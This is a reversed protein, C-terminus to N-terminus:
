VADRPCHEAALRHLMSVHQPSPAPCVCSCCHRVRIAHALTPLFEADLKLYAYAQPTKLLDAACGLAVVRVQLCLRATQAIGDHRSCHRLAIGWFGTLLLSSWECNIPLLGISQLSASCHQTCLLVVPHRGPAWDHPFSLLHPVVVVLSATNRCLVLQMFLGVTSEAKPNSVVNMLAPLVESKLIAAHNELYITLGSLIAVARERDAYAGTVLDAALERLSEALPSSSQKLPASHSHQYTVASPCSGAFPLMQISRHSILMQSLLLPLASKQPQLQALTSSLLQAAPLSASCNLHALDLFQVPELLLM